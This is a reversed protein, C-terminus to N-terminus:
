AEGENKSEEEKAEGSPKEEEGEEAEGKERPAAEGEAPAPAEEIEEKPATVSMVVTEGEIVYEYKDSKALDRVYISQDLETLGSLDVTISHPLDAPLAEVEIEDMNKILVGEKEKVAPAEGEFEVPVHAKVKEDMRVEYFDISIIEQKLPNEQVEHILVPHSQGDVELNLVSHEGAEEYVKSFDKEPITLHLNAIGRGYLEAPILGGRRLKNTKKGFVERKEAKLTIM